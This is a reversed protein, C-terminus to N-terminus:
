ESHSRSILAQELARDQRYIDQFFHVEGDGMVVATGYLILVPVPQELDM